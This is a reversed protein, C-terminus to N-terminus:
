LHPLDTESSPHYLPLVKVEYPHGRPCATGFLPPGFCSVCFKSACIKCMWRCNANSGFSKNCQGCDKVFSTVWTLYHGKDCVMNYTTVFTQEYQDAFTTDSKPTYQM